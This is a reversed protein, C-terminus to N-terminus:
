EVKEFETEHVIEGAPDEENEPYPFEQNFRVQLVPVRRGGIRKEVVKGSISEMNGCGPADCDDDLWGTDFTLTGDAATVVDAAYETYSSGFRISLKGAPDKEITAERCAGFGGLCSENSEYRGIVDEPALPDAALSVQSLFAVLLPLIM